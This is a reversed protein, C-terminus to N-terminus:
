EAAQQAYRDRLAQLKQIREHLYEARNLDDHQSYAEEHHAGLSRGSRSYEDDYAALSRGSRMYEDDEAGVSRGRPTWGDDARSGMTRNRKQEEILDLKSNIRALIRDQEPDPRLQTEIQTVREHLRVQSQLRSEILSFKSSIQGMLAEAERNDRIKAEVLSLKVGLQHLTDEHVSELHELRAHLDHPDHTAARTTKPTATEPSISAQLQDLRSLIHNVTDDHAAPVAANIFESKFEVASVPAQTSSTRSRISM